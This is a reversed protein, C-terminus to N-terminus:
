MWLPMEAARSYLISPVFHHVGWAIASLPLTLLLKPLLNNNLFYYGLDTLFGRRFVKQHQGWLRELPVFVVVLLALWVCLRVTDFALPPLHEQLQQLSEM